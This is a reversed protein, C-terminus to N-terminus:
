DANTLADLLKDEVSRRLATPRGKLKPLNYLLYEAEERSLDMMGGRQLREVQRQLRDCEYGLKAHEHELHEHHLLARRVRDRIAAREMASEVSEM